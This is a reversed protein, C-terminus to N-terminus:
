ILQKRVIASVIEKWFISREEQIVKNNCYYIPRVPNQIYICSSFNSHLYWFTQFFLYYGNREQTAYFNPL